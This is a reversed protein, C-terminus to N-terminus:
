LFYFKFMKSVSKGYNNGDQHFVVWTTSSMARVSVNVFVYTPMCLFGTPGENCHHNTEFSTSGTFITNEIIFAASDPLAINGDAYYSNSIHASCGDAFNKSEKWYINNNNNQAIHAHYQVDGVSYGGVFVNDYDVNNSLVVAYGNDLGAPTFAQCTIPIYGKNSIDGICGAQPFYQM